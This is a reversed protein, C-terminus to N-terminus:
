TPQPGSWKDRDKDKELRQKLKMFFDSSYICFGAIFFSLVLNARVFWTLEGHKSRIENLAQNQAKITENLDELRSNLEEIRRAIKEQRDAIAKLSDIVPVISKDTARRVEECDCGGPAAVVTAAPSAAAETVKILGDIVRDMLGPGGESKGGVGVFPAVEHLLAAGAKIMEPQTKIWVKVLDFLNSSAVAAPPLDHVINTVIIQNTDASSDAPLSRVQNSAAINTVVIQIPPLNSVIIQTLNTVNVASPPSPAPNNSSSPNPVNVTLCGTLAVALLGLWLNRM